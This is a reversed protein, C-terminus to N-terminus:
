RGGRHWVQAGRAVVAGEVHRVQGGGGGRAVGAWGWAERAGGTACRSGKHRVQQGWAGVTGGVTGCEHWVLVGGVGRAVDAFRM